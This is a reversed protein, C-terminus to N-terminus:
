FPLEEGNWDHAWAEAVNDSTTVTGYSNVMLPVRNGLMIKGMLNADAIASQAIPISYTVHVPWGGTLLDAATGGDLDFAIVWVNERGADRIAASAGAFWHGMACIVHVDPFQQLAATTAALAEETGPAVPMERVVEIKCHERVEPLELGQLFGITRVVDYFAPSKAPLMVLGTETIGESALKKAMPLVLGKAGELENGSSVSTTPFYASAPGLTSVSPVNAEHLKRMAEGMVIWDVSLAGVIPIGQDIMLQMGAIDREPKGQVDYVVTDAAWRGVEGLWFRNWGAVAPVFLGYWTHGATINMNKLEAIEEDTLVAEPSDAPIANNLQDVWFDIADQINDAIPDTGLPYPVVPNAAHGVRPLGTAVGGLAGLAAASAAGGLFDRRSLMARTMDHVIKVHNPNKLLPERKTKRGSTEM